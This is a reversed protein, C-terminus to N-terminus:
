MLCARASMEDDDPVKATHQESRESLTFAPWISRRELRLM